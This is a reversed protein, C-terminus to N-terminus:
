TLSRIPPCPQPRSTISCVSRAWPRQCIFAVAKPQYYCTGNAWYTGYARNARHAGNAGDGLSVVDNQGAIRRASTLQQFTEAYIEVHLHQRIDVLIIRGVHRDTLNSFIYGPLFSIGIPFHHAIVVEDDCGVGNNNHSIFDHTFRNILVICTAHQVLETTAGVLHSGTHAQSCLTCLAM